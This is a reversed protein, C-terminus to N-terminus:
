HFCLAILIPFAALRKNELKRIVPRHMWVKDFCDEYMCVYMCVYMSTCMRIVKPKWSVDDPAAKGKFNTISDDNMRKQKLSRIRLPM